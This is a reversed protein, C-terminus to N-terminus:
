CILEKVNIYRQTAGIGQSFYVGTKLPKELELIKWSNDYQKNLFENATQKDKMKKVQYRNSVMENTKRPLEKIVNIM